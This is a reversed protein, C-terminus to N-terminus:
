YESIWSGSTVVDFCLLVFQNACICMYMNDLSSYVCPSLISILQFVSASLAEFLCLCLINVTM